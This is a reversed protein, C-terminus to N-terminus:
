LSAPPARLLYVDAHREGAYPVRVPFVDLLSPRPPAVVAVPVAPLSIEDAGREEPPPFKVPDSFATLLQQSSRSPLSQAVRSQMGVFLLAGITFLLLVARRAAGSVSPFAHQNVTTITGGGDVGYLPPVRRRLAGM